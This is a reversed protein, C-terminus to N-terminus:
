NWLPIAKYHVNNRKQIFWSVATPRLRSSVISDTYINRMLRHSFGNSGVVISWRLQGRFKLTITDSDLDPIQAIIPEIQAFVEKGNTITIFKADCLHEVSKLTDNSRRGGFGVRIPFGKRVADILYSKEGILPQGKESNKYILQWQSGKTDIHVHHKSRCALCLIFITMFFIRPRM